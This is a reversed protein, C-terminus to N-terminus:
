LQWYHCAQFMRSIFELHKYNIWMHKLAWFTVIKTHADTSRRKLRTQSRAVRHVIAQRIGRDMPNELGFYQLPNGHGGGPSTASGPILGMDGTDRASCVSEASSLWSPSVQSHETYMNHADEQHPYSHQQKINPWTASPPRLAEATHSLGQETSPQAFLTCVGTIVFRDGGREARYAKSWM